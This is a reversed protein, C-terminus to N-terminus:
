QLLEVAPYDRGLWHEAADRLMEEWEPQIALGQSLHLLAPRNQERAFGEIGTIEVLIGPEAAPQQEVERSPQKPFLRVKSAASPSGPGQDIERTM